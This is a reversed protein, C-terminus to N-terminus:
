PSARGFYGFSLNNIEIKDNFNITKIQENNESLYTSEIIKFEDNIKEELIGREAGRIKMIPTQYSKDMCALELAKHSDWKTDVLYRFPGDEAKRLIFGDM